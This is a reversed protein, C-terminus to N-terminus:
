KLIMWILLHTYVGYWHMFNCLYRHLITFVYYECSYLRWRHICQMGKRMSAEADGRKKLEVEYRKETAEEATGNCTTAMPPSPLAAASLRESGRVFDTKYKESENRMRMEDQELVAQFARWLVLLASWSNKARGVAPSSFWQHFTLTLLSYCNSDRSSELIVGREWSLVPGLMLELGWSSVIALSRVCCCGGPAKAAAMKVVEALSTPMQMLGSAGGRRTAPKRNSRRRETVTWGRRGEEGRRRGEEGRRRMERM